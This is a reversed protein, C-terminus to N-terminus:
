PCKSPSFTYFVSYLENSLADTTLVYLNGSSSFHLKKVKPKYSKGNSYKGMGLTM